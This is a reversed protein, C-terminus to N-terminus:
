CSHESKRIHLVLCTSGTLSTTFTEDKNVIDVDFENMVISTPNNLSLYTKEPSEFFLSGFQQGSSTFQPVHYLVKSPTHKFANFSQYPFNKVRVFMSDNGDEAIDPIQNSTFTIKNGVQASPKSVVGDGEFGLSNVANAGISRKYLDSPALVMVFNLDVGQSANLTKPTKENENNEFNYCLRTDVDRAYKDEVGLIQQTAWWDKNKGRYSWNPIGEKEGDTAGSPDKTTIGVWNTLSIYNTAKKLEIQPFLSWTSIGVPKFNNTSTQGNATHSKPTYIIQNYSAGDDDSYELTVAEGHVVFRLDTLEDDDMNLQNAPVLANNWGWYVIEKMKINSPNDPDVVSHFVEITNNDDPNTRVMFDYFPEGAGGSFYSPCPQEKTGSRVLGCSFGGDVSGLYFNCRGATLSLCAKTMQAVCLGTLKQVKASAGAVESVKFNTRDGTKHIWDDQTVGNINYKDDGFKGRARQDFSIDFGKFADTGADRDVEVSCLGAINPHYLYGQTEKEGTYRNVFVEEGNLNNQIARALEDPSVSKRKNTGIWAMMPNSTTDEVLKPDVGVSGYNLLEGFWMYMRNAARSMSFSPNKNIKLSQVAIESHPPITVPTNMHNTWEYPKYMGSDIAGIKKAEESNNSLVVLSM